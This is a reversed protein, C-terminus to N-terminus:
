RAAISLVRMYTLNSGSFCLRSSLMQAAVQSCALVASLTWQVISELLSKRRPRLCVTCSVFVLIIPRRVFLLEKLCGVGNEDMTGKRTAAQVFEIMDDETLLEYKDQKARADKAGYHAVAANLRTEEWRQHEVNTHYGPLSVFTV